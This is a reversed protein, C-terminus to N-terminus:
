NDPWLATDFIEDGHWSPMNPYEFGIRRYIDDLTV